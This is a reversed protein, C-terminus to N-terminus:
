YDLLKVTTIPSLISLTDQLTLLLDPGALAPDYYLTDVGPQLLWPLRQLLSLKTENPYGSVALVAHPHREKRWSALKTSFGNIATTDTLILTYSRSTPAADTASENQTCAGLTALLIALLLTLLLARRVIRLM